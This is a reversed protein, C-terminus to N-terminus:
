ETGETDPLKIDALAIGFFQEEIAKLAQEGSTVSKASYGATQLVAALTKCLNV